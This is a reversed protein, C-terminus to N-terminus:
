VCESLHAACFFESVLLKSNSGCLFSELPFGVCRSFSWHFGMFVFSYPRTTETFVLSLATFYWTVLVFSFALQYSHLGSAQLWECSKNLLLLVDSQGPEAKQLTNVMFRETGPSRFMMATCVRQFRLALGLSPTRSIHLWPHWCVSGWRTVALPQSPLCQREHATPETAVASGLGLVAPLVHFLSLRVNCLLVFHAYTCLPPWALPIFLSVPRPGQEEQRVSIATKQKNHHSHREHQSILLLHRVPVCMICDIPM